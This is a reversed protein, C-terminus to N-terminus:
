LAELGATLSQFDSFLHTDSSGIVEVKLVRKYDDFLKELKDMSGRAGDARTFVLRLSTVTREERKVQATGREKAVRLYDDLQEYDSDSLGRGTSKIEVLQGGDVFDPSRPKAASAEPLTPHKVLDRHREYSKAFRQYWDESLNGLDSSNLETTLM